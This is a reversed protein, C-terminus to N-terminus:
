CSKLLSIQVKELSVLNIILYTNNIKKALGLAQHILIFDNFYDRNNKEHYLAAAELLRRVGGYYANIGMSTQLHTHVQSAGSKPM